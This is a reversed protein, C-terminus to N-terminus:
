DLTLFPRLKELRKPGIGKVDALAEISAFRGAARRAELIREATAAGVGPLRRLESVGAKNISITGDGPKQFKAPAAAKGTRAGAGPSPKGFVRGSGPTGAPGAAPAVARPAAEQGGGDIEASREPVHVQDSDELRAALNLADREAGPAFGGAVHIARLLRSGAPLAYVGPHHVRGSVHVVVPPPPVPRPAPLAAEPAVVPAPRPSGAVSADESTEEFGSPARPDVPIAAPQLAPAPRSASSWGAVAFSVILAAAVAAAIRERPTLSM